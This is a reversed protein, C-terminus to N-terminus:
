NPICEISSYPNSNPIECTGKLVKSNSSPGSYFRCDSGAKHGCNNPCNCAAFATTAILTMRPDVAAAMAGNAWLLTVASIIATKFLM